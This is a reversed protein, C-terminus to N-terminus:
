NSLLYNVADIIIQPHQLPVLHHADSVPIYQGGSHEAVEKSWQTGETMWQTLTDAADPFAEIQPLEFDSDIVSVPVSTIHSFNKMAELDDHYHAIEIARTQQRDILLRQQSVLDFYAWDMDAKNSESLMAAVEEREGDIKTQTRETWAGSAIHPIIDALRERYFTVPYDQYMAISHPLLIDPDIWVMGSVKVEGDHGYKNLYDIATVNGSAFAVLVIEKEGKLKLTQQLKDTFDLYSTNENFDSWANGPRDIAIVKHEAALQKQVLAFWASDAHFNKNPGSILVVTPKDTAQGMTKVHLKTGAVDLLESHAPLVPTTASGFFQLVEYSTDFSQHSWQHGGNEIAYLATKQSGNWYGTLAVQNNDKQLPIALSQNQQGLLAIADPASILPFNDHEMGGFPLVTDKTGHVMMYSTPQTINCSQSLQLSMPSAVSAVAKFVESRNCLLNQVFLGGQSFGAAYIEGETVLHQLKIDSIVSDVFGLDDIGLRHPKNCDCGENWEEVKSKPYAVIYDSSQEAFGAVAKMQQPNSRSGHFALLLKYPKTSDYNSPLSLLYQREGIMHVSTKSQSINQEAVILNTPVNTDLNNSTSQNCGTLMVAGVILSLVTKTRTNNNM